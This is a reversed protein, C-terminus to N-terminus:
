EWFMKLKDICDKMDLPLPATVRIEERSLPHIFSIESAHLAQRSILRSPTGYMKDGLVPHGAFAMHVRIQHTRGTELWLELVTAPGIEEVIRFHTVAAQGKEDVQRRNQQGPVTGINADICGDPFDNIIGQGNVVARYIRHIEGSKLQAELRTQIEPNKAFLVCGTTDRDLRHLPRITITRGQDQFYGALYNALTFDETQGAPHVLIGSPKNLVILSDDEYLVEVPGIQPRVGYTNDSFIRIAAMDGGRLRRKTHVPSGNVFVNRSRFLKQRKRSSVKMVSKLYEEITMDAYKDAVIYKKLGNHNNKM